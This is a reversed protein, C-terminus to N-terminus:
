HKTGKAMWLPCCTAKPLWLRNDWSQKTLHYHLMWNIISGISSYELLIPQVIDNGNPIITANLAQQQVNNTQIIVSPHKCLM